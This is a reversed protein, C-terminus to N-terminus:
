EGRLHELELRSRLKLAIKDTIEGIRLAAVSSIAQSMPNKILWNNRQEIAEIVDPDTLKTDEDGLYLKRFVAIQLRNYALGDQLLAIRQRVGEQTADAMAQDLDNELADLLEDTYFKAVAYEASVRWLGADVLGSEFMQDAVDTLRSFYRRVAPSASGYANELYTNFLEDPDADADWLLGALVYYMHGRTGWHPIMSDYFVYRTDHKHIHKIDEALRPIFNTAIGHGILIANPRWYGKGGRDAWGDFKARESEWTSRDWYSAAQQVFGILVNPHLKERLPPASTSYYAYGAVKLDPRIKELREAMANWFAVMRDSMSVHEYWGEADSYRAVVGDPHDLAECADCSCWNSFASDNPSGSISIYLPNREIVELGTAVAADIVEPNSTCLKVARAKGVLTRQGNRHQAFWEPHDEHFRDWWKTFAHSAEVFRVVSLRKRLTWERERHDRLEDDSASLNLRKKIAEYHGPWVGVNLVRQEFAPSQQRDFGETVVQTHGTPVVEGVPGPCIWDIGYATQLYDYVAFLTGKSAPSHFVSGQQDHGFLYLTAGRSLLRYSDRRTIPDVGEPVVGLVFVAKGTAAQPQWQSHSIRSVSANTAKKLYYALEDAAYQVSEMPTDPLVIQVVPDAARAVSSLQWVVVMAAAVLVAVGRTSRNTM